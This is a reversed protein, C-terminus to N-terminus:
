RRRIKKRYDEASRINNVRRKRLYNEEKKRKATLITEVMILENVMHTTGM